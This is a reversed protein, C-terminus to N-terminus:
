ENAFLYAAYQELGNNMMNIVGQSTVTAGSIGDIESQGQIKSEGRQLLGFTNGEAAIEKGVFREAFSAETLEGAYDDSEAQQSFEIKLIQKSKRDVLLKASLHGGFGRGNCLLMVKDSNDIEIIPLPGSSESQMMKKYQQAVEEFHSSSVQGTGDILQFRLVQKLENTDAFTVEAFEGIEKLAKPMQYPREPPSSPAPKEEETSQNQCGFLLSVLLLPLWLRQNM